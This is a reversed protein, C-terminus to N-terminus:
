SEHRVALERGGVEEIWLHEQKRVDVAAPHLEDAVGPVRGAQEGRAERDGQTEEEVALHGVQCARPRPADEGRPEEGEAAEGKAPVGEELRKEERRKQEEGRVGA